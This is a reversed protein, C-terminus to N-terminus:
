EAITAFKRWCGGVARPAIASLIPWLLDRPGLLPEILGAVEGCSLIGCCTRASKAPSSYKRTIMSSYARSLADSSFRAEGVPVVIGLVLLRDKRTFGLVPNRIAINGLPGARSGPDFAAGVGLM